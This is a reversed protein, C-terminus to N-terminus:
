FNHEMPSCNKISQLIINITNDTKVTTYFQLKLNQIDSLITRDCIEM